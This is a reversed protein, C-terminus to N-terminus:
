RETKGADLFKKYRGALAELEAKQEESYSLWANEKMDTGGELDFRINWIREAAQLIM